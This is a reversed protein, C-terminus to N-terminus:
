NKRRKEVKLVSSWEKAGMKGVLVRRVCNGRM